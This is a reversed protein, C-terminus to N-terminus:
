VAIWSGISAERNCVTGASEWLMMYLQNRAPQTPAQAYAYHSALMGDWHLEASHLAVAGPSALWGCPISQTM